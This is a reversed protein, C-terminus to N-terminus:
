GLARRPTIVRLLRWGRKSCVWGGNCVSNLSLKTAGAPVLVWLQVRQSRHEQVSMRAPTVAGLVERPRLTLPGGALLLSGHEAHLWIAFGIQLCGHGAEVAAILAAGAVGAPAAALQTPKGNPHCQPALRHQM